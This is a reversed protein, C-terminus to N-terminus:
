LLLLMIAWGNVRKTRHTRHTVPNSMQCMCVVFIYLIYILLSQRTCEGNVCIEREMAKCSEREIKGITHTWISCFWVGCIDHACEEFNNRFILLFNHFSVIGMIDYHIHSCLYAYIRSFPLISLLSQTLLCVVLIVLLQM